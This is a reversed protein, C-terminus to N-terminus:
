SDERAGWNLLMSEECSGLLNLPFSDVQWRLLSLLHMNLGQTSFIEQLLFHYGVRTNKGPFNWPCLTQSDVIWPIVFFQVCSLLLAHM